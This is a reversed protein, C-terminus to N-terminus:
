SSAARLEAIRAECEELRQRVETEGAVWTGPGIGVLFFEFVSLSGRSRDHYAIMSQLRDREAELQAIEDQHNAEPAPGWPGLNPSM